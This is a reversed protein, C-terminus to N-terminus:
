HFNLEYLKHMDYVLLIAYQCQVVNRHIDHVPLFELKGLNIMLMWSTFKEFNMRVFINLM